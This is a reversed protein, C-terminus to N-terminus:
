YRMGYVIGPFVLKSKEQQWLQTGREELFIYGLYIRYFTQGGFISTNKNRYVKEYGIDIIKYDEDAETGERKRAASLSIFYNKNTVAEKEVLYSYQLAVGDYKSSGLIGINLNSFYQARISKDSFHYEIEGFAVPIPGLTKLGVNLGTGEAVASKFCFLSMFVFSLSIVKIAKKYFHYM